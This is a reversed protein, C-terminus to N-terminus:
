VAVSARLDKVGTAPVGTFVANEPVVTDKTLVSRAAITSGDGLRCGPMVLSELGITVRHGITVKKLKLKGGEVIHGLIVADGGIVSDDGIEMLSVDALHKTNIQVRKGIKAGMLRYFLPLLPTLRMFDIFMVNVWLTMANVLAWKVAELSLYEYEGEKLKLNLISRLTVTMVILMIGFIFFGVGASISLVLAKLFVTQPSVAQWLGFFLLFSPLLSFGLFVAGLGYLLFTSFYFFAITADWPFWKKWM